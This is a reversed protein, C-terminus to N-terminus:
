QPLMCVNHGTTPSVQCEKPPRCRPTCVLRPPPRVCTDGDCIKPPRCNSPSCVPAGAEVSFKLSVTVSDGNIVLMRQGAKATSALDFTVIASQPTANSVRINSVDTGPSVRVQSASLQSLDFFGSSNITLAPSTGTTVTTPTLPQAQVQSVLLTLIAAAVLAVFTRHTALPRM